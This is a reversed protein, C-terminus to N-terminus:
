ALKSVEIIRDNDDTVVVYREGPKANPAYSIDVGSFNTFDVTYKGVKEVTLIETTM